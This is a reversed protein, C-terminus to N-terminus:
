ASRLLSLFYLSEGVTNHLMKLANSISMMRSIPSEKVKMGGSERPRKRCRLVELNTEKPEEKKNYKLHEVSNQRQNKERPIELTTCETTWLISQDPLSWFYSLTMM